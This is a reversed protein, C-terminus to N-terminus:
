THFLADKVIKYFNAKSYNQRVVTNANEAIENNAKEDTLMHIVNDAFEQDTKSILYHIRDNFLHEYGRAGTVTTVCPRKQRMAELVKINTGAGEYCPVIAVRSQRYEEDLDEVYGKFNIKPDDKWKSLDCGDSKGVITVIVEPIAKRILPLISDLFHEIGSFNPKYSILGVFLLSPTTREFSCTTSEIEWFPINPLYVVDNRVDGINSAFICRVKKIIISLIRKQSAIEYNRMLHKWSNRRGSDFYAKNLSEQVSIPNDDMDIILRDAYKMLGCNIADPIYRVVIFDYHKKSTFSDIVRVKDREIRIFVDLRDHLIYLVERLRLQIKSEKKYVSKAFVIKCNEINSVANTDEFMVVDVHGLQSCANLLLNSRQAAGSQPEFINMGHNEVFLIEM